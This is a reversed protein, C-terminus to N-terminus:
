RFLGPSVLRRGLWAARTLGQTGSCPRAVPRQPLDDGPARALPAFAELTAYLFWGLWISEGRGLEGVRNMGDNWDGTGILPLGHEGVALSQELARACHEFLSAEEDAVAPLFFADHEGARLAQGEIFPVQEELVASDGTTEVYHAAAYALWVRDDSIRTRVGTGTAPLWWHQVDGATFQRGAARLLHERTLAPRAVVLAMGDQLQDRFGYAGSAQYFGSRAWLRCVLTQYLLWRNLIIDMSRDPTKVQVAGLVQDWHEVVSRYVADLDALRYRGVCHRRRLRIPPRAWSSVIEVAGGAELNSPPRSPAARISDPASAARCNRPALLSRPDRLSGHRGLFERRDGTWDTQRGALDAFAVQSGFTANWPNRAFMANTVPDMETIIFPAGVARSTGLVWEVYATVSLRRSRGTTNRLKLRSIKIPDDLPVYVLLDLAM